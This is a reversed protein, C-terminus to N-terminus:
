SVADLIYDALIEKNGKKHLAKKKKDIIWIENVDSGFGTITNPPLYNLFVWLSFTSIFLIFIFSFIIWKRKGVINKTDM